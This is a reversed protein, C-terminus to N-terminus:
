DVEALEGPRISKRGTAKEYAIRFAEGRESGM